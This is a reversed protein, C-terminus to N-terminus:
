VNRSTRIANKEEDSRAKSMGLRKQQILDKDCSSGHESVQEVVQTQMDEFRMKTGDGLTFRVQGLASQPRDVANLLSEVSYFRRLHLNKDEPVLSIEGDHARDLQAIKDENLYVDTRPPIISYSIAAHLLFRGHPNVSDHLPQQAISKINKGKTIVDNTCTHGWDEDDAFFCMEGWEYKLVHSHPLLPTHQTM